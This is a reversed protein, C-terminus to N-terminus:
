PIPQFRALPEAEPRHPDPRPHRPALMGGFLEADGFRGMPHNEFHAFSVLRLPKPDIKATLRRPAINVGRGLQITLFNNKLKWREEVM